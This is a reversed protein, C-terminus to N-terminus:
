NCSPCSTIRGDAERYGCQPCISEDGPAFLEETRLNLTPSTRKKKREKVKIEKKPEAKKTLGYPCKGLRCGEIDKRYHGGKCNECNM